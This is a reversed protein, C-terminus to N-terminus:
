ETEVSLRLESAPIVVDLGTSLEVLLVLQPDVAEVSIVAGRFGRNPGTIIDVSDNLVFPLELTRTGEYFQAHIQKPVNRM